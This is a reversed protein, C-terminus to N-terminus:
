QLVLKIAVRRALWQKDNVRMEKGGAVNRQAFSGIVILQEVAQVLAV